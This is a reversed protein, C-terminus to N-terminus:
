PTEKAELSNGGHEGALVRLAEDYTKLWCRPWSTADDRYRMREERDAVDQARIAPDTTHHLM